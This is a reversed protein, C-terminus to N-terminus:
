RGFRIVGDVTALGVGPEVVFVFQVVVFDVFDVDIVIVHVVIQVFGVVTRRSIEPRLWTRRLRNARSIAPPFRSSRPSGSRGAFRRCAAFTTTTFLRSAALFRAPAVFPCPPVFGSPAAPL